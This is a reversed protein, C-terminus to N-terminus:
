ELLLSQVKGKTDKNSSGDSTTLSEESTEGSSTDSKTENSENKTQQISVGSISVSGSKGKTITVQQNMGTTTSQELVATITMKTKSGQGKVPRKPRKYKLESKSTMELSLILAEKKKNGKVNTVNVDIVSKPRAGGTSSFMDSTCQKLLGMVKQQSEANMPEVKRKIMRKAAEALDIVDNDYNEPTADPDQNKQEMEARFRDFTLSM